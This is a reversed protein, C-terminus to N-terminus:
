RSGDNASHSCGTQYPCLLRSGLGRRMESTGSVAPAVAVIHSDKAILDGVYGAQGDQTNDCTEFDESSPPALVGSRVIRAMKRAQCCTHKSAEINAVLSSGTLHSPFLECRQLRFLRGVSLYAQIGIYCYTLIIHSTTYSIMEPSTGTTPKKQRPLLFSHFRLRM